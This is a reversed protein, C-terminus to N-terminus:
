NAELHNGRLSPDEFMLNISLFDAFLSRYRHLLDIYKKVEKEQFPWVLRRLRKDLDLHLVSLQRRCEQLAEENLSSPCSPLGLGTTETERIAKEVRFLVDTLASVEQLYLKQTKPASKIDSVYSYSLKTIQGALQVLGGISALLGVLEAM